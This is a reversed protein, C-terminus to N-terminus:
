SAFVFPRPSAPPAKSPPPYVARVAALAWCMRAVAADPHDGFEVATRAACGGTGLRGLTTAGGRRVQECSPSGSPQLTSAFLAQARFTEFARPRQWGARSTKAALIDAM